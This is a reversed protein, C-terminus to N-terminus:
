RWMVAVPLRPLLRRTGTPPFNWAAMNKPIIMGFFGQDGLKKWIEPPMDKANNYMEWDDLEACLDEVPGDLFAQEEQSLVAPEAAILKQWDPRGSFLEPEWWVTGAELAERETDSMPPLVARFYGLMPKMFAAKRLPPIFIIASKIALIVWIVQPILQLGTYSQYVLLAVAVGAVASVYKAAMSKFSSFSLVVLTVCGILLAAFLLLEFIPSNM